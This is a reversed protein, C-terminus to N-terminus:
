IKPSDVPGCSICAAFVDRYIYTDALSFLLMESYYLPASSGWLLSHVTHILETYKEYAAAEPVFHSTKITKPNSSDAASLRKRLLLTTIDLINLKTNRGEPMPFIRQTAGSIYNIANLSYAVRADYICAWEPCVISLWKSWSSIGKFSFDARAPVASFSVSNFREIIAKANSFSVIGGWDKIFYNALQEKVAESARKAAESMQRKLETDKQFPTKGSFTFGFAKHPIDEDFRWGYLEDLRDRYPSLYTAIENHM